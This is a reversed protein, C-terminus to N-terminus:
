HHVRMPVACSYGLSFARKLGSHLCHPHAYIWSFFIAVQPTWLLALKILIHSTCDCLAGHESPGPVQNLARCQQRSLRLKIKNSFDSPVISCAQASSIRACYIDWEKHGMWSYHELYGVSNRHVWEAHFNLSVWFSCLTLLGCRHSIFWPVSLGLLGHKRNSNSSEKFASLLYYCKLVYLHGLFQVM